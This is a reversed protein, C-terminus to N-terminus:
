RKGGLFLVFAVSLVTLAALTWMLYKEQPKGAVVAALREGGLAWLPHLVMQCALLCTAITATAQLPPTGPTVFSTFGVTVMAWAKPNVVHLPLGAWFGPPHSGARVNLTSNAIKWALWLIYGASVWKLVAFATPASQSLEILGLGLPWIILQKGLIVGLVFPMAQRLGYRAGTAMMAMNAPGPTGVQSAGFILFNAIAVSM